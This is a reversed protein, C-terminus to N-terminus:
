KSTPSQDLHPGHDSKADRQTSPKDEDAHIIMESSGVGYALWCPSVHLVKALKEVTIIGVNGLTRQEEINYVTVRGLGAPGIARMMAADGIVPFGFGSLVPM